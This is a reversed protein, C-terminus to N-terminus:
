IGGFCNYQLKATLGKKPGEGEEWNLGCGVEAQFGGM